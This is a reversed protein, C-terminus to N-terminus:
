IIIMPLVYVVFWIALAALVLLCALLLWCRYRTQRKKERIMQRIEVRLVQPPPVARDLLKPIAATIQTLRGESMMRVKEAATVLHNAAAASSCDMATALQRLDMSLGHHLVFAERQQMPLTDVSRMLDSFAVNSGLISDRNGAERTHTRATLVTFHAFWRDAVDPDKLLQIRSFGTRLVTRAVEFASADNACLAIAIRHVRPYCRDLITTAADTHKDTQTDADVEPTSGARDDM